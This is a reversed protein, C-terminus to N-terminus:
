ISGLCFTIDNSILTIIIIMKISLQFVTFQPLTYWRFTFYEIWHFYYPREREKNVCFPFSFGNRRVFWKTYKRAEETPYTLKFIRYFRTQKEAIQCSLSVHECPAHIISLLVEEWALEERRELPVMMGWSAEDLSRRVKGKQLWDM